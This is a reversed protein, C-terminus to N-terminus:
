GPNRTVYRPETRPQRMGPGPLVGQPAPAPEGYPDEPAIPVPPDHFTDEFPHDHSADVGVGGLGRNAYYLRTFASM